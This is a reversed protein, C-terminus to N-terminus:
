QRTGAADTAPRPWPGRATKLNIILELKVAQQIPLDSPKEGKLLRGTYVGALRWADWKNMGYSMLGGASGRYGNSAPVRHRAALAVLQDRRQTLGPTARAKSSAPTINVSGVLVRPGPHTQLSLVAPRNQPLRSSMFRSPVISINPKASQLKESSM